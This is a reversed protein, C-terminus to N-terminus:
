SERRRNVHTHIYTCISYLLTYMGGMPSVKREEEQMGDCGTSSALVNPYNVEGIEECSHRDTDIEDNYSNSYLKPGKEGRKQVYSRFSYRESQYSEKKCAAIQLVVM